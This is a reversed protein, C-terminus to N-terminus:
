RICPTDFSENYNLSDSDISTIIGNQWQFRLYRYEVEHQRLYSPSSLLDYLAEPKVNNEECLESESVPTNDIFLNAIMTSINDEYPIKQISMVLYGSERENYAVQITYDKYANIFEKRGDGPRIGAATTNDTMVFVDASAIAAPDKECGSLFLLSFAFICLLKKM